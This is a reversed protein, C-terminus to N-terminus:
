PHLAFFKWIEDTAKVRDSTVGVMKEPLLRHGGPWVHGLDHIVHFQFHDGYHEITVGDREEVAPPDSIGLADAWAHVSTHVPRRNETPGWPLTVTGGDFPALPDLKGFFFITPVVRPLKVDRVRCPGSVPAIAALVNPFEAAMRFTMAAGNSFGSMFIRQPDAGHNQIVDDIVSKLFAVDDVDSRDSNSNWMQPNTLFHQPGKPDLRFAEPYVALFGEEDAKPSWGSSKMATWPTGGRGDLMLVAARLNTARAPSHLVYRRKLRGIDLYIVEDSMKSLGFSACKIVFKM